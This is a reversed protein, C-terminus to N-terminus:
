AEFEVAAEKSNFTGFYWVQCSRREQVSTNNFLPCHLLSGALVRFYFYVLFSHLYVVTLKYLLLTIPEVSALSIFLAINVGNSMM